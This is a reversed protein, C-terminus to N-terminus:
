KQLCVPALMRGLRKKARRWLRQVTRESIGLLGATEAHSFGRKRERVIVFESAPLRQEANRVAEATWVRELEWLGSASEQAVPDYTLPIPEDAGLIRSAQRRAVKRCWGWLNWIVTGELLETWLLLFTEQVIDEADTEQLGMGVLYRLLSARFEGYAMGWAERPRDCTVKSCISADMGASIAQSNTKASENKRM